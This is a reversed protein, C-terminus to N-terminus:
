NQLADRSLLQDRGHLEDTVREAHLAAKQWTSPANSFSSLFGFSVARLIICIITAILWAFKLPSRFIV